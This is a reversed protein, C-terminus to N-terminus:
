ALREDREMALMRERFKWHGAFRMRYREPDVNLPVLAEKKACQECVPVRVRVTTGAEASETFPNSSRAM